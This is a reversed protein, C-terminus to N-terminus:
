LLPRNLETCWAAPDASSEPGAVYREWLDPATTLGQEAIWKDFEGWAEGLGEYGGRYTTRVVRMAPWEGPEVRGKPTVPSTVPVCIEFDFVEPDMRLHHTFWAGSPGIGQESAAAMVETIGPGMVTQIQARPITLRILATHLATTETIEPTDLM